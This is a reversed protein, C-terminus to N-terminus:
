ILPVDEVAYGRTELAIAMAEGSLGFVCRLPEVGNASATALRRSHERLTSSRLRWAPACRAIVPAAFRREFETRLVDRDILLAIAFRNAQWEETRVRGHGPENFIANERDVFEFEDDEAPGFLSLEQAKAVFLPRHLEWHGLEHALTFRGRGPDSDLKLDRSLLIRRKLPQTKGLVADGHVSRLDAEDNYVLEQTESLHVVIEELDVPRSRDLSQGFTRGLLNAAKAEIDSEPLFPFIM